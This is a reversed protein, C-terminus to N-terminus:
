QLHHGRLQVQRTELMQIRPVDDIQIAGGLPRAQEQALATRFIGDKRQEQGNAVM